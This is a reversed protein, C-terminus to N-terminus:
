LFLQNEKKLNIYIDGDLERQNIINAGEISAYHGNQNWISSGFDYDGPKAWAQEILDKFKM